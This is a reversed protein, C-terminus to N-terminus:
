VIEDSALSSTLNNLMLFYNSEHDFRCFLISKRLVDSNKFISDNERMSKRFSREWGRMIQVKPPQIDM